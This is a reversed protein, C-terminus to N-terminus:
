FNTYNNVVSIYIFYSFDWNFGLDAIFYCEPAFTVLFQNKAIKM